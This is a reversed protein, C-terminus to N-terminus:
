PKASTPALRILRGDSDDSLVYVAGDPGHRVDRIRGLERVFMREQATVKDGDLTLRVVMQGALAGVLLNGSWKSFLNPRVGGNGDTGVFAMGSVAISPTWQLLPDVMGTKSTGEGIKSGTGYNAGFTVVPWGYNNGANLINIEDGGQPGHEHTWVKNTRPNLAAGQINRNGLTFIEPKADATKVFPNDPPVRGDDTLRITKGAHDNLQQSRQSAGKAPSDGRDGFTVFMFGDRDFVIRSGFHFGRDSKPSMKFLVKVDTMAPKDRTGGLKGRAVETGHLGGEVANYTWYIWGNEAYKPHLVVDLLGGQGFETVKPIGEVPAAVLKGGDVVRMTGRRETVLMRGDPLFAVAWPNKLGSVVTTATVEHQDTKITKTQAHVALPAVAALLALMAIRSTFKTKM